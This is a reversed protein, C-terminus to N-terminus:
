ATVIAGIAAAGALAAVMPGITFTGYVLGAVIAIKAIKRIMKM